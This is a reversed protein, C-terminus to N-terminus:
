VALQPTGPTESLLAAVDALARQLVQRKGPGGLSIRLGNRAPEGVAFADAAVLALGRAQAAARVREPSWSDPLDLWVHLSTPDGVAAPLAEAALARRAGAEARVGALLAEAPGERIWSTVVAAMLPAPMLSLARLAQEVAAAKGRPAAVFALRLGPTLTKALTAIHFTREPALSAMAPPPAELLRAYPDDEILNLGHDTAIRAIERRRAEPMTGATPNQMTPVLYLARPAAERCLAELADPRVGDADVACPRLRLGLQAAATKIGPYTLPETLVTDGARCLTSLVAALAVQAGAALRVCEPAVDGLTPALWAAGATRQGLTGAGPHYAMLAAADTRRLVATTTEELLRALSLSQPPPPLNMTLDVLGAEDDGTRARVFTGRGVTGEILGRDRAAAFARTVTTLDVGLRAAVERQAPLRDGPHLEGDRVAAALAEPLALYMPRDRAVRDLWRFTHADM